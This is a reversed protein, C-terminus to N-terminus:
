QVGRLAPCYVEENPAPVAHVVIKVTARNKEGVLCIGRQKLIQQIGCTGITGYEGIVLEVGELSRPVADLRRCERCTLKILRERPVCCRLNASVLLVQNPLWTSALYVFGTSCSCITGNREIRSYACPAYLHFSDWGLCTNCVFEIHELTDAAPGVITRVYKDRPKFCVRRLTSIYPKFYPYSLMTFLDDCSYHLTLDQVIPPVHSRPSESVSKQVASSANLNPEPEFETRVRIKDGSLFTRIQSLSLLLPCQTYVPSTMQEDGFTMGVMQVVQVQVERETRNPELEFRFDSGFKGVVLTCLRHLHQRSIFDLLVESLGSPLYNCSLPQRRPGYAGHLTFRRVNVVHRFVWQLSDTDVAPMDTDVDPMYLQLKLTTIYTAIQPSEELLTRAAEYNKLHDVKSSVSLTIHDLLIRQSLVRFRSEVLSCAKLSALDDVEALIAGVLEQALFPM